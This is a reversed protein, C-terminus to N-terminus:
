PRYPKGLVLKDGSMDVEFFKPYRIYRGNESKHSHLCMLWKGQLTRFLMGHGFNPPTIPGKEQEWPGNLAGTKSYAVGQTYVDHVWSTWIMGLRGTGTHFLFPGDTVKSPRERGQEGKEKSWPADSAFFLVTRKGTTGSLNPKLSKYEVTGNWNQLWEYCYIMYPKGDEVWFTADLTAQDQPLYISDMMPRYPGGPSSSVLVHCARREVANGKVSDIIVARNTFTGFYYYKGQYAHIEPAWIMPKRGMWSATDTEAVMFPGEWYKLDASKWLMGGTGTMYYMQTASDALIFPDSMRISDIPVNKRVPMNGGQGYLSVSLLLGLLVVLRRVKLYQM